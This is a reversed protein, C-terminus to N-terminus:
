SRRTIQYPTAYAKTVKARLHRLFVGLAELTAQNDLGVETAVEQQQEVQGDTTDSTLAQHTAELVSLFSKSVGPNLFEWAFLLARQKTLDKLTFFDYDALWMWIFDEHLNLQYLTMDSLRTTPEAQIASKWRRLSREARPLYAQQAWKSQLNNFFAVLFHEGAGASFGNSVFQEILDRKRLKILAEVTQIGLKKEFIYGLTKSPVVTSIPTKIEQQRDEEPPNSIRQVHLLERKVKAVIKKLRKWIVRVKITDRKDDPLSEQIERAMDMLTRPSFGLIGQNQAFISAEQLTISRQGSGILSLFLVDDLTAEQMREHIMPLDLAHDLHELFGELDLPEQADEEQAHTISEETKRQLETMFHNKQNFGTWSPQGDIGTNPSFVGVWADHFIEVKKAAPAAVYRDEILAVFRLLARAFLFQEAAKAVESKIGNSARSERFHFLARETCPGSFRKTFLEAVTKYGLWVAESTECGDLAAEIERSFYDSFELLITDIQEPTTAEHSRRLVEAIPNVEVSFGVM